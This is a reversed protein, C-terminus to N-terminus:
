KRCFVLRFDSACQEFQQVQDNLVNAFETEIIAPQLPLNVCKQKSRRRRQCQAPEVINLTAQLIDDEFLRLGLPPGKFRLFFHALHKGGKNHPERLHGLGGTGEVAPHFFVRAPHLLGFGQGFDRRYQLFDHSGCSAHRMVAQVYAVFQAAHPFFCMGGLEFQDFQMLFEVTDARLCSMVREGAHEIALAQVFRHLSLHGVHPALLAGQTDSQEINVVELSEIISQPVGDTVARQHM